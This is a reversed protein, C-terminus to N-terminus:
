REKDKPKRKPQRHVTHRNGSKTKSRERAAEKQKEESIRKAEYLKKKVSPRKKESRVTGKDADTDTLDYSRRSPPSKETKAATPNEHTAKEKRQPKEAQEKEAIVEKSKEPIDREQEKREEIDREAETVISTKDVNGLEFRDFIRQVKASDEERCIIDVEDNEGKSNKDKLVCYLVGYKKAQETFKKLNKNPVAFVTLPKGSKIMSTLRSKGKTKTPQKLTSALLLAVNKAASGTLRAVVEFGELSLRVVQEAADGSNNM